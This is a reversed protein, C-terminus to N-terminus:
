TIAAAAPEPTTPDDLEYRYGIAAIDVHDVSCFRVNDLDLTPSLKISQNLPHCRIWWLDAYHFNHSPIQTISITRRPHCLVATLLHGLRSRLSVSSSPQM